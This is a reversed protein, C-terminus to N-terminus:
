LLVGPNLIGAPDLERKMAALARAYPEPRELAWWPKHLRGVAHHHTVTGGSRMVADTAAQKVETWQEVEGGRRCKGFFTFYPAPGDPYVHSFRCTVAGGGCARELAGRVAETVEGYLAPFASWTCATEFPDVMVGLCLLADQLYPGRLFVAKWNEAADAKEAAPAQPVGGRAVALELARALAADVPHDASEFAVLLVASGDAAVGNIMVEM